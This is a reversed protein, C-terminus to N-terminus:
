AIGFDKPTLKEYVDPSTRNLYDHTPGYDGGLPNLHAYLYGVDRYAWLLSDVRSQRYAMNSTPAQAPPRQAPSSETRRFYDDWAQGVATPDQQWQRYLSEIYQTNNM